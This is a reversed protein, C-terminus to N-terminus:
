QWVLTDSCTGAARGIHYVPWDTEKAIHVYPHLHLFRSTPRSSDGTSFNDTAARSSKLGRGAPVIEM